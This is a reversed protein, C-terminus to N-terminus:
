SIWRVPIRLIMNKFDKSLERHPSTCPSPEMVKISATDFNKFISHNKWQFNWVFQFTGKTNNSLDQHAPILPIWKSLNPNLIHSINIKLHNKWSFILIFGLFGPKPLFFWNLVHYCKPWRCLGCWYNVYCHIFNTLLKVWLHTVHVM